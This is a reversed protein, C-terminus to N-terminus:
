VPCGMADVKRESGFEIHGYEKLSSLIVYLLWLTVLFIAFEEFRNKWFKPLSHTLLVLLGLELPFEIPWNYFNQMSPKVFSVTLLRSAERPQPRLLLDLSYKFDDIFVM